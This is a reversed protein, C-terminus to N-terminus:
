TISLSSGMFVLLMTCMRRSGQPQTGSVSAGKRIPRSTSVTLALRSDADDLSYFNDLSIQLSGDTRFFVVQKDYSDSPIQLAAVSMGAPADLLDKIPQAFTAVTHGAGSQPDYAVVTNPSDVPVALLQDGSWATANFNRVDPTGTVPIQAASSIKTQTNTALDWLIGGNRTQVLLTQGDSGWQIPHHIHRADPVVGVRKAAIVDYVVTDSADQGPIGLSAAIYRCGPSWGRELVYSAKVGNELTEIPADPGELDFLQLSVLQNQADPQAIRQPYPQRRTLGM